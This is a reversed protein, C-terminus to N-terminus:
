IKKLQKHLFASQLLFQIFTAILFAMALGIGGYYILGYFSGILIIVRSIAFVLETRAMGMALIAQSTVRLMCRFFVMLCLIRMITVSGSYESGYLYFVLPSIIAVVLSMSLAIVAIIKVNITLLRKFKVFDREGYVNSMMSIAPGSFTMPIFSIVRIWRFAADYLGMQVYGDQQNVLM